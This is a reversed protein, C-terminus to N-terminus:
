IHILSLTYKISFEINHSDINYYLKNEINFILADLSNRAHNLQAGIGETFEVEGLDEDGISSNVEGLNYQALIDFYEQEITNFTSAIFKM